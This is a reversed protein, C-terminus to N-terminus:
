RRYCKDPYITISYDVDDKQGEYCAYIKIEREYRLEIDYITTKSDFMCSFCILKNIMHEVVEKNEGGQLWEERLHEHLRPDSLFYTKEKNFEM